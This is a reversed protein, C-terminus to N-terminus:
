LAAFDVVKGPKEMVFTAPNEIWPAHEQPRNRDFNQDPKKRPTTKNTGRIREEETITSYSEWEHLVVERRATKSSTRAESSLLSLSLLLLQLIQIKPRIQSPPLATSSAAMM